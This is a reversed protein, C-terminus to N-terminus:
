TTAASISGKSCQSTLVLIGGRLFSGVVVYSLESLYLTSILKGKTGFVDFDDEVM